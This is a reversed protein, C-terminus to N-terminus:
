SISNITDTVQTDRILEVGNEISYFLIKPLDRSLFLGIGETVSYAGTNQFVLIDGIQANELPFQKVIVDSVTCLSGCINWAELTGEKHDKLHIVYPQKMAMTQGYYNLHHIGGDVICYNQDQNRKQDVIATFFSGCQAVLYRGIELTIRGKFKLRDLIKRFEALLDIEDSKENQFYSVSFGPGYELEEALFDYQENLYSCLEDLENLEKELQSIKRKQTGSYLQLGKFELASYEKRKEIISCIMTRDMGFQNGSSLRLLVHIKLNREGACKELLELQQISEITYVGKGKYIDLIREIDKEEKYVGSLVIQKMSIESRECIRFEGPSCVEFCDVWDKMRSVLFPNAKMAYCIRVKNGLENRIQQVRNKVADLDFVYAPTKYQSSIEKLIKEDM